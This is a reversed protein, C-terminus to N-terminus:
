LIVVGWEWVLMFWWFFCIKRMYVVVELLGNLESVLVVVFFGFNGIDIIYVYKWGIFINGFINNLNSGIYYLCVFILLFIWDIFM